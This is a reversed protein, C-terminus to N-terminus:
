RFVRPIVSPDLFNIKPDLQVKFALVMDDTSRGVTGLVDRIRDFTTFNDKIAKRNGLASTRLATSKFGRIGNFVSPYRISGGTDSVIAM